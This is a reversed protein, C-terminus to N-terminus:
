RRTNVNEANVLLRQLSSPNLHVLFIVSIFTHGRGAKSFNDREPEIFGNMEAVNHGQGLQIAYSEPKKRSFNINFMLM